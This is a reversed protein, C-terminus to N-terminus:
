ARKVRKYCDKLAIKFPLINIIQKESKATSAKCGIGGDEPRKM